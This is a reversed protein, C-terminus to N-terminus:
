YKCPALFQELHKVSIYKSIIRVVVTLSLYVIILM